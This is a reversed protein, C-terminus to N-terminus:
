LARRRRAARNRERGARVVRPRMSRRRRLLLPRQEVFVADAAVVRGLERAVQREVREVGRASERVRRFRPLRSGCTARASIGGGPSGRGSSARMADNTVHSSLARRAAADGGSDRRARAADGSGRPTRSRPARDARDASRSRGREQGAVVRALPEVVDGAREAHRRRQHLGVHGGRRLDAPEGDAVRRRAGADRRVARRAAQRLVPM